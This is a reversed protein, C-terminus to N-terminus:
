KTRMCWRGGTAIIIVIYSINPSERNAVVIVTSIPVFPISSNSAMSKININQQSLTLAEGAMLHTFSFYGHGVAYRLFLCFDIFKFLKENCM